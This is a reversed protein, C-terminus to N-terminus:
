HSSKSLTVGAALIRRNFLAHLVPDAISDIQLFSTRAPYETAPLLFDDPPADIIEPFSRHTADSVNM